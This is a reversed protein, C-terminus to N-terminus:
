RFLSEGLLGTLLKKQQPTTRVLRGTETDLFALVTQARACVEHTVPDVLLYDMTLSAPKIASIWVDVLVPVGRYELSATYRIRHEAVLAQVGDAIGSFLSVQGAPAEPTGVGTGAPAGFAVIRAEELIRLVQVNNIHGYADMDSWRLPIACRVATSPASNMWRNYGMKAINKGRRSSVHADPHPLTACKRGKRWKM